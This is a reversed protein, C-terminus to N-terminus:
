DQQAKRSYPNSSPKPRNTRSFDELEADSIGFGTLELDRPIVRLERQLRLSCIAPGDQYRARHSCFAENPITFTFERWEGSGERVGFAYERTVLGATYGIYRVLVNETM